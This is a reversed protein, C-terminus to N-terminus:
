DRSVVIFELSVSVFHDVEFHTCHGTDLLCTSCTLVSQTTYWVQAINLIHRIDNFSPPVFHRASIAGNIDYHEFAKVLPLSTFM